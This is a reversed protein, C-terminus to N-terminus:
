FTLMKFFRCVKQVDNLTVTELSQAIERVSKIKGSNLVQQAVFEIKADRTMSDELEVIAAKRARALADQEVGNGAISKLAAISKSAVSAVESDEGQIYFGLLGADSHHIGLASVSTSGTSAPGLLCSVGSLSGYKLRRNGDLLSKLVLSAAYDPSSSSVSPYAIVYHAESGAGRDLRTEGGHYVSRPIKVGKANVQVGKLASAVLAELEEHAVGTGVIVMRDAAFNRAAFESLDARKLHHVDADKAYLSNGLGHRFAVQHLADLVATRPDSLASASQHAIRDRAQLFEFPQYSANFVQGLLM